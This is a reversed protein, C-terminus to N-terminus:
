REEKGDPNFVDVLRCWTGDTTRRHLVVYKGRDVTPGGGDIALTFAYRGIEIAFDGGTEFEVAELEVGSLGVALGARWYAEIQHRGEILRAAPTLLRGDVAYLAAADAASGRGLAEAFADAANRVGDEMAPPVIAPPRQLGTAGAAVGAVLVPGARGGRRAAAARAPAPRAHGRRIRVPRLSRPRGRRGRRNGVAAAGARRPRAARRRPRPDRARESGGSPQGHPPCACTARARTSGGRRRAGPRAALRDG